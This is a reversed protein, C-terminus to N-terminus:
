PFPNETILGASDLAPYAIDQQRCRRAIDPYCWEFLTRRFEEEPLRCRRYLGAQERQAMAEYLILAAAVSVNLSSVLGMMPITLHTDARTAVQKSAGRLESGLVIACPRTYDVLRFDVARDSWHAAFIRLGQGQLLDLAQGTSAHVQLDVYKRSGGSIMHHRRLDGDSPVTHLRHIGVADCTRRIAAINQGKHVAEALVTLDPQRRSLALKLKEFRSPTM